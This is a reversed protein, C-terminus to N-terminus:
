RRLNIRDSIFMEARKVNNKETIYVDFGGLDEGQYVICYSGLHITGEPMRRKPDYRGLYKKHEAQWVGEIKIAKRRKKGLM